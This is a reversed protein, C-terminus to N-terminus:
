IYVDNVCICMYVCIDTHTHTSMCTAMRGDQFIKRPVAKWLFQQALRQLKISIFNGEQYVLM